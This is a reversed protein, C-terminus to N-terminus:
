KLQYLEAFYNIVEPIRAKYFPQNNDLWIALENKDKFPATWSMRNMITDVGDKLLDIFDKVKWGDYIEKDLNYKTLDIPEINLKHIAVFAKNKIYAQQNRDLDKFDILVGHKYIAVTSVSNDGICNIDIEIKYKGM